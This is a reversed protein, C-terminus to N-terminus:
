TKKLFGNKPEFLSGEKLMQKIMRDAEGSLIDYETQLREMLREKDVMGTEETWRLARAPQTDTSSAGAAM